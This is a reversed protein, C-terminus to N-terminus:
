EGERLARLGAPEWVRRQGGDLVRDVHDVEGPVREVRVTEGHTLPSAHTPWHKQKPNKALEILSKVHM